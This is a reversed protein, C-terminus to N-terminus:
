RPGATDRAAILMWRQFTADYIFEARGTETTDAGAALVVDAGDGTYIRNAATSTADDVITWQQATTNVVVLRKGDFGNAFGTTTFNSTPGTLRIFSRAGIALNSNTGNSVALNAARTALDGDVDMDVVPVTSAAGGVFLRGALSSDATGTGLLCWKGTGSAVASRVAASLTSGLLDDVELAVHTTVNSVAAAHVVRLTTISWGTVISPHSYLDRYDTIVGTPTGTRSTALRDDIVYIFPVTLNANNAHFTLANLFLQWLGGDTITTSAANQVTPAMVWGQCGGGFGSFMNSGITWTGHSGQDDAIAYGFIRTGTGIDIPGQWVNFGTRLSSVATVNAQGSITGPNTTSSSGHLYLKGNAAGSGTLQGTTTTSLLADNATGARGALLLYISHDDNLLGTHIGHDHAPIDGAVLLQWSPDTGDSRVFRGAGGIGLRINDTANRTLLDGRTTLPSLANFAALATAAGTGGRAIALQGSWGMTLSAAALLATTPSGGLTVTVNTDNTRTLAAGSVIDSAPIQQWSPDTGDSRVYRGAAGIALASWRPTANGVILSGRVVAAALTDGHTASLLNHAAAIASSQRTSRLLDGTNLRLASGM